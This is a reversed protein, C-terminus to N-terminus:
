TNLVPAVRGWCSHRVIKHAVFMQGRYMTIILDQLLSEGTSSCKCGQAVVALLTSPSRRIVAFMITVFTVLLYKVCMLVLLCLFTIEVYSTM